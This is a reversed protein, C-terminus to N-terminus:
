IVEKKEGTSAVGNICGLYIHPVNCELAWLMMRETCDGCKSRPVYCGDGAGRWTYLYLVLLNVQPPHGRIGFTRGKGKRSRGLTVGKGDVAVLSWLCVSRPFDFAHMTEPNLDFESERVNRNGVDLHRWKYPENETAFSLGRFTHASSLNYQWNVSPPFVLFLNQKLVPFQLTYMGASTTTSSSYFELRPCDCLWWSYSSNATNTAAQVVYYYYNQLSDRRLSRTVNQM